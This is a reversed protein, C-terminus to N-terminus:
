ITSKIIWGKESKNVFVTSEAETLGSPDCCSELEQPSLGEGFRLCVGEMESLHDKYKEVNKSPPLTPNVDHHM